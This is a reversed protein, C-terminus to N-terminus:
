FPEFTWSRTWADSEGPKLGIKHFSEVSFMHDAAWLAVGSLNIRERACVRAREKSNSLTWELAEGPANSFDNKAIAFFRAAKLPGSFTFRRGDALLEGEVQCQGRDAGTPFTLTYDPGLSMGNITLFNHCYEEGEFHNEGVNELKIHMDIRNGHIEVRKEQRLAFGGCPKPSTVFLLSDGDRTVDIDFPEAAYKKMFSYPGDADKLLLGVGPKIFYGGAPADAGASTKYENCIGRGGSSVHSLNHPESACFRHVGDLVVEEIFGARDFRTTTNPAIGPVSVDVRLRDNKLTYM